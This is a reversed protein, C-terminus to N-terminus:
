LTDVGNDTGVLLVDAGRRAFLGNTVVGVMHNIIEELAVPDDIVLGHVDIIQNGNDTIFGDRLRANGGLAELQRAVQARAMPIVEVPLPFAGLRGVLKSDDMVCVFRQAADAVIKERTLAGGGGKILHGQRTSEDAGDIYVPIDSVETLDLVKIGHNRLRQASRESSAVTGAIRERMSALEDIFLDATSGTGVGVIDGDGIFQLAARAVALKKDDQNMSESVSNSPTAAWDAIMGLKRRQGVQYRVHNSANCHGSFVDFSHQAGADVLNSAFRRQIDRRPQGLPEVISHQLDSSCM